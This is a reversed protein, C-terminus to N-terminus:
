TFYYRKNYLMMCFEYICELDFHLTQLTVYTYFTTVLMSYATLGVCCPFSDHWLEPYLVMGM